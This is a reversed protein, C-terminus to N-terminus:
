KRRREVGLWWDTVANCSVGVARAFDKQTMGYRALWARLRKAFTDLTM